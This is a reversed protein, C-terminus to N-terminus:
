FKDYRRSVKELEGILYLSGVAYVADTDNKQALLRSWAEEPYPEVTINVTDTSIIENQSAETTKKHEPAERLLETFLRGLAEAPLSREYAVATCVIESFLGSELLMRAMGPYAKDAMVAFLLRRKGKCGDNQVATLFARIGDANHAGDLIVGPSLEEFRGRWRTKQLADRVSATLRDDRDDWLGLAEAATLALAANEAQYLARTPLCFGTYRHYRSQYSFDIGKNDASTKVDAPPKVPFLPCALAEARDRIVKAAEAPATLYVVPVGNKCIGAKEGAIEELTEGLLETHDRGIRTIVACVPEALVNTADLRGGLGTEMVLHEPQKEEYWLMALFFFREFYYLSESEKCSASLLASMRALEKAPIMEGNLRIRERPDILHPSTFLGASHGLEELIRCLYACVSGKGNTGAVHIVKTKSRKTGLTLGLAEYLAKTDSFTRQGKAYM